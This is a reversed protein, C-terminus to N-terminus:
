PILPLLIASSRVFDIVARGKRFKRPEIGDSKNFPTGRVKPGRVFKGASNGELYLSIVGFIMLVVLNLM